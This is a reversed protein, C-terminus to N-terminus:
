TVAYKRTRVWAISRGTRRSGGSFWAPAGSSADRVPIGSRSSFTLPLGQPFLAQGYRM